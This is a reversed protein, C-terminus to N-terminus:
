DDHHHRRFLTEFLTRQKILYVTRDAYAPGFFACAQAESVQYHDGLLDVGGPCFALCAVGEVLATVAAATHSTRHLISDGQAAIVQAIRDPNPWPRRGRLYDDIALPVAAQLHARLLAATHPNTM